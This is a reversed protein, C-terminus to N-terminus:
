TSGEGAIHKSIMLRIGECCCLLEVQESQSDRGDPSLRVLYVDTM